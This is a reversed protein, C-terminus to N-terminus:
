YFRILCKICGLNIGAPGNHPIKRSGSPPAWSPRPINGDRPRSKGDVHRSTGRGPGVVPCVKPLIFHYIRGRTKPRKEAGQPGRRAGPAGPVAGARFITCTADFILEPSWNYTANTPVKTNKPGVAFIYLSLHYIQPGELDEWVIKAGSRSM